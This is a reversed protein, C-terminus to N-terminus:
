DDIKNLTEPGAIGDESLGFHHQFDKVVNKTVSGYYISPNSPFNGFGLLTLDEKMEKIVLGRDGEQYPPTLKMQLKNLTTQDAIGIPPLNYYEQFEILVSKTVSGFTKSPNTPFNGFGLLTLDIKLQRIKESSNGDRYVSNLLENIKNLSETDVKGNTNSFRFFEQFEKVVGTTVSGYVASPNKPFNGFGLLSLNNKLEIIEEESLEVQAHVVNHDNSFLLYEYSFFSFSILVLSLVVM